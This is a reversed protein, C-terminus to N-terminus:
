DTPYPFPRNTAPAERATANRVTRVRRELAALTEEDVDHPERLSRPLEEAAVQSRNLRGYLARTHNELALREGEDLESLSRTAVRESRNIGWCRELASVNAAIRDVEEAVVRARERDATANELRAEFTGNASGRGIEDRQDGIADALLGGPAAASGNAASGNELVDTCSAEQASVAPALFSLGLATMVLVLALPRVDGTREGTM